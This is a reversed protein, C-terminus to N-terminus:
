EIGLTKLLAITNKMYQSDPYGRKSKGGSLATKHPIKHWTVFDGDKNPEIKFTLNQNLAKELLSLLKKGEGNEPLYAEFAGGRYPGGPHPDEARQVGDPVEYKIKICTHREYGTLPLTTSSYTMTANLANRNGCVKKDSCVRCSDKFESHCNDCIYHGCALTSARDDRKCHDCVRDVPESEQGVAPRRLESLNSSSHIKKALSSDCVDAQYNDLDFSKSNLGEPDKLVIDSKLFDPTEQFQLPKQINENQLAPFFYSFSVKDEIFSENKRDVLSKKQDETPTMFESKIFETTFDEPGKLYNRELYKVSYDPKNGQEKIVTTLTSHVNNVLNLNDPHKSKVLFRDCQEFVKKETVKPYILLLADKGVKLSLKDSCNHFVNCWEKIKADDPGKVGLNSYQFYTKTYIQRKKRYLSQMRDKASWLKMKSSANLKLVTFEGLKEETLTVEACWTDIDSKHFEKMYHWLWDEMLIEDKIESTGEQRDSSDKAYVNSFSSCRRLKVEAPKFEISQPLVDILSSYPYESSAKTIRVPQLKGVSQTTSKVQRIDVRGTQLAPLVDIKKIQALGKSGSKESIQSLSCDEVKNIYSSRTYDSTGLTKNSGASREPDIHQKNNSSSSTLYKEDLHSKLYANSGTSPNFIASIRSGGKIECSDYSNFPLPMFDRKGVTSSLQGGTAQMDYSQLFSSPNNLKVQVDCIHQKGLAVDGSNGILFIYQDDEHCLLLPFLTKLEELLLRHTDKDGIWDRKDIQEKRLILELGQYLEMLNSKADRLHKMCDKDGHPTQLYITTIEDSSEEVAQVNYKNLSEKYQLSYFQKIYRFIDSDWVFPEQLQETTEGRALFHVPEASVYPRSSTHDRVQSVVPVNLHKKLTPQNTLKEPFIKYNVSLSSKKFVEDLELKGSLKRVELKYTKDNIKLFHDKMKLVSDVVKDDEFIVIAHLPPGPFIKIDEVEGGGNRTRLFHITLKDKARSTPIDTPIGEVRLKKREM